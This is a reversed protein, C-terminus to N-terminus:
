VVRRAYFSDPALPYIVFIVAAIELAPTINNIFGLTILIVLAIMGYARIDKSRIQNISEKIRGLLVLVFFFSGAVGLGGLIDIFESHLGLRNGNGLLNGTIPSKLFAEWSYNSLENRYGADGIMKGNFFLHSLNRAREALIHQDSNILYIYLYNFLGGIQKHFALTLAVIVFIVGIIHKRFSSATIICLMLVIISLLIATMYSSVFITTEVLIISLIYKKENCRKYRYFCYPLFLVLAYIFGYGGINMGQYMRNLTIDLTSALQRSAYPFRINGIITTFCELHILFLVTKIINIKAKKSYKKFSRIYILPIWFVFLMLNKSLMNVGNAKWIGVYILMDAFVIGIMFAADSILRRRNGLDHFLLLILSVGIIMAKMGVPLIRTVPLFVFLFYFLISATLYTDKKDIRIM